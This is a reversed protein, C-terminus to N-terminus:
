SSGIPSSGTFCATPFDAFSPAGFTWPPLLIPTLIRASPPSLRERVADMFEAGLGRRQQDYWVAAQELDQEAVARLVVNM